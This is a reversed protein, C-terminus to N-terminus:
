RNTANNTTFSTVIGLRGVAEQHETNSRYTKPIWISGFVLTNRLRYPVISYVMGTTLWCYQKSQPITQVNKKPFYHKKKESSWKVKFINKCSDSMKHKRNLRKNTKRHKGSTRSSNWRKRMKPHVDCRLTPSRNPHSPCDPASDWNGNRRTHIAQAPVVHHKSRRQPFRHFVPPCKWLLQSFCPLLLFPLSVFVDLFVFCTLCM